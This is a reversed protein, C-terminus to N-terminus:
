VFLSSFLLVVFMLGGIIIWVRSITEDSKEMRYIYSVMAFALLDIAVYLAFIETNVKGIPSLTLLFVTSVVQLALLMIVIRASLKMKKGVLKM